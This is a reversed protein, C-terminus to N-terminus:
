FKYLYQNDINDTIMSQTMQLVKDFPYSQSTQSTDIMEIFSFGNINKVCLEGTINNNSM